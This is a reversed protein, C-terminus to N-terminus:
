GRYIHFLESKVQTHVFVANWVAAPAHRVAFQVAASKALAMARWACSHPINEGKIKRVNKKPPFESSVAVAYSGYGAGGGSGGGGSSGSGWRGM